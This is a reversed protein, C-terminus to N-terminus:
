RPICVQGIVGGGFGMSRFGAPCELAHINNPNFPAREHEAPLAVFGRYVGRRVRDKLELEALQYLMDLTPVDGVPAAARASAAAVEGLPEVLPEGYENKGRYVGRLGLGYPDYVFEAGVAM